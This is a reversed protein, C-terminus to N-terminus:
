KKDCNVPTNKTTFGASVPTGLVGSAGNSSYQHTGSVSSSNESNTANFNQINEVKEVPPTSDSKSCAWSCLLILAMILALAARRKGM